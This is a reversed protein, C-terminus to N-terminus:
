QETPVVPLRMYRQEHAGTVEIIETFVNNTHEFRLPIEVELRM